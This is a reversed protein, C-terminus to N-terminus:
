LLVGKYPTLADESVKTIRVREEEEDPDGDNLISVEDLKAPSGWRRSGDQLEIWIQEGRAARAFNDITSADAFSM